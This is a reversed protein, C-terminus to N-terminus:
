LSRVKRTVVFVGLFLCAAVWGAAWAINPLLADFSAGNTADFFALALPYTPILKVIPSTSGPMLVAFAPVITPLILMFSYFLVESFDRARAGALLGLGTFLLTGLVVLLTLPLPAVLMAGIVTLLLFGQVFAVFAGFLLKATIWDLVSAPTALVAVVTRNM